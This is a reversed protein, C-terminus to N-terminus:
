YLGVGNNAKPARIKNINKHLIDTIVAYINRIDVLHQRALYLQKEDHEKLAFTYDEVHPYKIIKSCIKARNLYDLRSTDRINYASEQSRLLESLAEEQISVGFNDGDEIKPMTLNVWLKVKDCLEALQECEKKVQQHAKSLHKNALVLSPYRAHQIDNAGVAISGDGNRKRKKAEPEDYVASSPTPYVTADTFSSAHSLHFPSDLTSTTEILKNLEFIKSPFVSFVINEATTAVTKKFEELKRAVAADIDASMIFLLLPLFTSSAISLWYDM